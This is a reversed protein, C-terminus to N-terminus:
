NSNETLIGELEKIKTKLTRSNSDKQMESKFRSLSASVGIGMVQALDTLSHKSRCYRSLCYALFRRAEGARSRPKLLTQKDLGSMQGVANVIEKVEFGGQLNGFQPQEGSNKTTLLLYKRRIM